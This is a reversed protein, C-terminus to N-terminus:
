STRVRRRLLAALRARLVDEVVPKHLFDDVGTELCEVESKHDDAATLVVIPLEKAGPTKRLRRLVEAGSMDPLGLDLLMLDPPRSTAEEIAEAGAHAVTVDFERELMTRVLLATARDDEVLLLRPRSGDRGAFGSAPRMAGTLPAECYPCGRWDPDIPRKCSPCAKPNLSTMCFPCSVFEIEVERGCSLCHRVEERDFYTARLVEDLTTQGSWAKELAVDRLTRMGQARAAVTLVAPSTGAAIRERLSPTVELV